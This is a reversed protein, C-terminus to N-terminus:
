AVLSAKDIMPSTEVVVTDVGTGGGTSSSQILNLSEDLNEFLPYESNNVRSKEIILM